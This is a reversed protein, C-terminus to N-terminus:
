SYSLMQHTESANRKPHRRLVAGCAFCVNDPTLALREEGKGDNLRLRLLTGDRASFIGGAYGSFGCAPPSSMRAWELM